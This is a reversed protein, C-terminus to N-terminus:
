RERRGDLRLSTLRWEHAKTFVPRQVHEVFRGPWLFGESSRWHDSFTVDVDAGTTSALGNMTFQYRRLIGTRTGVWAIFYDGPSNGIGPALRGQVLRCPEDDLVRGPLLTLERGHELLWSPGFLFITYADAVLAASDLAEKDTGAQGNFSVTVEPRRRIVEKRGAPGTHAQWVRGSRTDYRELSAKRFGADVLVPQLTKVLRTWEGDYGVEVLRINRWARGHTDASQELVARAAAEGHSTSRASGPVPLSSCSALVAFASLILLRRM